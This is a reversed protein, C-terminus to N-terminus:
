GRREALLLGPAYEQVQSFDRRKYGAAEPTVGLFVVWRATSDQVAVRPFLRYTLWQYTAEDGGSTRLYFETGAPLKGNLWEVFGVDAGITAGPRTAVEAASIAANARRDSRFGQWTTWSSALADFTLVAAVALVAASGMGIPAGRVRGRWALLVAAVLVAAVQSLMTM